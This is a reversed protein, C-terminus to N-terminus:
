CDIGDVEEEVEGGGFFFPVREGGGGGWFFAWFVYTLLYMCVFRSVVTLFKLLSKQKFTPIKKAEEMWTWPVCAQVQFRYLEGACSRKLQPARLPRPDVSGCFFVENKEMSDM